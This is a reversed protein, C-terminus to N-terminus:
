GIGPNYPSCHGCQCFTNAPVAFSVMNLVGQTNHVSSYTKFSYLRVSAREETEDSFRNVRGLKIFGAEAKLCIQIVPRTSGRRPEAQSPVASMPQCREQSRLQALAMNNRNKRGARSYASVDSQKREEREWGRM